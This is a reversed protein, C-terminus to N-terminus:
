EYFNICIHWGLVLESLIICKLTTASLKMILLLLDVYVCSYVSTNFYNSGLQEQVNFEYVLKYM